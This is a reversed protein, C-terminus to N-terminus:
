FTMKILENKEPIVVETDPLEKAVLAKFKGMQAKTGHTAVAITPKIDLVMKLGKEPSCSPSPYGTPIFALDAQYNELPVYDSDAGHFVSLGNWKVHFVSIPSPHIGEISNVTFDGVTIPKNPIASFLDENPVENKLEEFIHPNVIIRAGTQQFFKKTSGLDFHDRHIHSNLQLDLTTIKEVNKKKLFINDYECLDFAIIRQKAKLLIGSWGFYIFAFGNEKLSLTILDCIPDLRKNETM